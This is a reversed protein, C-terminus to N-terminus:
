EHGEAYGGYQDVPPSGSEVWSEVWTDYVSDNTAADFVPDDIIIQDDRVWPDGAKERYM